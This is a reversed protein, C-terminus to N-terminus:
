PQALDPLPPLPPPLYVLDLPLPRAELSSAPQPAAEPPPLLGLGLPARVPLPPLPPAKAVRDPNLSAPTRRTRALNAESRPAEPLDPLARVSVANGQLPPLEPAALTSAVMREPTPAPKEQRPTKQGPKESPSETRSIRSLSERAPDSPVLLGPLPVRTPGTRSAPDSVIPPLPPPQFLAIPPVPQAIRAVPPQAPRPQVMLPPNPQRPQWPIVPVQRPAQVFLPPPAPTKQVIGPQKNGQCGHCTGCTMNMKVRLQVTPRHLVEPTPNDKKAVAREPPRVATNRHQTATPRPQQSFLPRQLGPGRNVTRLIGTATRQTPVLRRQTIRQLHNTRLTTMRTTSFRSFTRYTHFLTAYRVFEHRQGYPFYGRHM